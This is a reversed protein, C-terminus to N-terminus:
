LPAPKMKLQGVTNLSSKALMIKDLRLAELPKGEKDPKQYPALVSSLASYEVFPLRTDLKRADRGKGSTRVIWPFHRMHCLESGPHFMKKEVLEEVLGEHLILVDASDLEAIRVGNVGPSPHLFARTPTEPMKKQETAGWGLDTIALCGDKAGLADLAILPCVRGTAAQGIRKPSLDKEHSGDSIFVGLAREDFIAVKTLAAELVSLVFFCFGNADKPPTYLTNFTRPAESSGFEQSFTVTRKKIAEECLDGEPQVGHNGFHVLRKVNEESDSYEVHGAALITTIKNTRREVDLDEQQSYAAVSLSRLNMVEKSKAATWLGEITGKDRQFCVALHWKADDAFPKSDPLPKYAMMWHDYVRNVFALNLHGDPTALDEHLYKDNIVRVRNFPLFPPALEGEPIPRPGVPEKQVWDTLAKECDKIAKEWEGLRTENGVVVFLRFPLRWHQESIEKVIGISLAGSNSTGDDRIVLLYPALDALSGAGEPGTATLSDGTRFFVGNTVNQANKEEFGCGPALVGLMRPRRLRVRYVLVGKEEGENWGFETDFINALNAHCCNVENKPCPKIDCKDKGHSPSTRHCDPLCAYPSGEDNLDTHDDHGHLFRMAERMEILGHGSPRTKGEDDIVDDMFNNALQEFREDHPPFGSFNDWIELLWYDCARRALTGPSGPERLRFHICLDNQHKRRGGYKVSNRMMNELISYLAHRGVSGGPIAVLVDPRPSNLCKEKKKGHVGMWNEIDKWTITIEKGDASKNDQDPFIIKFCLNRGEVSRDAVLRNLLLRQRFFDCLVDQWLYMPEPQPPTRAILQAVYDLRGQLYQHFDKLAEGDAMGTLEFLRADSLAHSGINHSLSQSAIAAVATTTRLDKLLRDRLQLFPRTLVNNTLGAWCELFTHLDEEFEGDICEVTLMAGFVMSSSSFLPIIASAWPREASEEGHYRFHESGRYVKIWDNWDIGTTQARDNLDKQISEDSGDLDIVISDSRQPFGSAKKIFWPKPDRLVLPLVSGSAVGYAQRRQFYEAVQELWLSWAHEYKLQSVPDTDVKARLHIGSFDCLASLPFHARVLSNTEYHFWGSWLMRYRSFCKSQVHRMLQNGLMCKLKILLSATGIEFREERISEPDIIQVMRLWLQPAGSSESSYFDLLRFKLATFFHYSFANRSHIIGAVLAFNKERLKRVAFRVLAPGVAGNEKASPSVVVQDIYATKFTRFSSLESIFQKEHDINASPLQSHSKLGLDLAIVYGVLCNDSLNFACFLLTNPDALLQDIKTRNFVYGKQSLSDADPLPKSTQELEQVSRIFDTDRLGIERYDVSM